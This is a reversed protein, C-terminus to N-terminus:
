GHPAGGSSSSSGGGGGSGSGGGSSSSGGGSSSGGSRTRIHRPLLHVAWDSTEVRPQRRAKTHAHDGHGHLRAADPV